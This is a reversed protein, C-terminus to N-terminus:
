SCGRAMAGRNAEEDKNEKIQNSAQGLINRHKFYSFQFYVRVALVEWGTDAETLDLLGWFIQGKPRVVGVLIAFVHELLGLPVKLGLSDLIFLIATKGLEGSGSALLLYFARLLYRM